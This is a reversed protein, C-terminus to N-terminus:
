PTPVSSLAIRFGLFGVRFNPDDWSRYASRCLEAIHYWSGGRIVRDRGSKPGTPDTVSGGPYDGFRDSCWEFVNGHMDYLGWANPQKTAVPHTVGGEPAFMMSFKNPLKTGLPAYGRSNAAYWAMAMLDGAYDGKTGARCAYEWQAETPLTYVYGAPLRGAAAEHETLKDRFSQAENWSVQEVPRMDGRFYSPNNNMLATWQGQTVCTSGLLFDKTLTVQTQPGEHNL